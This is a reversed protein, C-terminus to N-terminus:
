GLSTHAPWKDYASGFLDMVVDGDRRLHFLKLMLTGMKRFDLNNNYYNNNININNTSKVGLGTLGQCHCFTM